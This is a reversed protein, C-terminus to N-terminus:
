AIKQLFHRIHRRAQGLRYEVVRYKMHLQESIDSVQLGDYVHLRYVSRCDEPLRALGHELQCVIDHVNCPSAADEGSSMGLLYRCEVTIRRRRYYDAILHQAITYVLHPLTVETLLQDSRLLRLFIDQVIDEAEDADAIRVAIFSVLEDRHLSYYNSIILQNNNM